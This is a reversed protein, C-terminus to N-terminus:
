LEIRWHGLGLIVVVCPNSRQSVRCGSVGEPSIL